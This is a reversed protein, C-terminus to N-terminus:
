NLRQSIATEAATSIAAVGGYLFAVDLSGARSGLYDATPTPLGDPKTLLLPGGRMAVHVGGGLADPFNSGSAVGVATPDPFFHDAV